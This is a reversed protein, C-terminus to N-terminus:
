NTPLFLFDGSEHGAYKLPAYEPRQEIQGKRSALDLVRASVERYLRQGELVDGNGNLVELFSKAFISHAGGGGDLVPQVGGSTLVTRSRAKALAKLWNLRVEDSMGSELQAIAARTMAGSYCSDAVVLVHKASMANLIDTIAVNSIWNADSEAEADVPLWHARLNAKDLEGHGAYYLLLNDKDTLKARAKNLESLIQYRTANLLTTVKFKYKKSLVEAVAQADAVSTDLKQLHQYDANGIVIAYYEGTDKLRAATVTRKAELVAQEADGEPVLTFELMSRKGAADVAVLTVPTGGKGALPIQRKFLGNEDIQQAQDNITFSLLGAPATVRGVVDRIASGGRVKISHPGRVLVVPPDILQISPPAIAVLAAPNKPREATSQTELKALKERYSKLEEELKRTATNQRALAESKQNLDAELAGIREKEKASSTAKGKLADLERKIADMAQRESHVAARQAELERTTEAVQEVAQALQQQAQNRETEARQLQNKYAELLRELRSVDRGQKELDAERQRVVDELKRVAELNGSDIARQQDQRLRDLESQKDKRQLELARRSEELEKRTAELQERLSKIENQASAAANSASSEDLAILNGLGSAKRYYNVALGPDQPVGLGKEHLFGLNMLARPYGKEAAKQYWQAAAAYDAQQGIGKEFIEGVYTQAEKDGKEALPLWINLATRYDSRDFAVYEGGRIECEGATLKAARRASLYTMQGGLRRIQGPLLCDVVLFRDAQSAAAVSDKAAQVAGGSFVQIASLAALILLTRGVRVARAFQASNTTRMESEEGLLQPEGDARDHPRNQHNYVAPADAGAARSPTM